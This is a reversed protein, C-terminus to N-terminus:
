HSIEPYYGLEKKLELQNILLNYRDQLSETEIKQVELETDLYDGNAILGAGYSVSAIELAKRALSLKEATIKVKAAIKKTEQYLIEIRRRSESSVREIDLQATKQKALEEERRHKAYGGDFLPFALSLVGAYNFLLKDPDPMYNNKWGTSGVATVTPRLREAEVVLRSIEQQKRLLQVQPKAAISSDFDISEPADLSLQSLGETPTVTETSDIGCIEALILLAQQLDSSSIALQEEYVKLQMESKLLDFQSVLGNDYKVRADDLHKGSITAYKELLGTTEILLSATAYVKILQYAVEETAGALAIGALDRGSRLGSVIKGRKGWDFLLYGASINGDLINHTGTKIAPLKFPLDAGLNIEPLRSIHTYSSGLRFQPLFAARAQAVKQEVEALRSKVVALSKNHNAAKALAERLSMGSALLSSTWVLLLLASLVTKLM